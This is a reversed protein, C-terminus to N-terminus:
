GQLKKKIEQLRRWSEDSNAVIQDDGYKRRRIESLIDNGDVPKCEQPESNQKRARERIMSLIDTATSECEENTQPEFLMEQSEVENNNESM